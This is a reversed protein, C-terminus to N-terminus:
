KKKRKKKQWTLHQKQQKTGLHLRRSRPINSFFIVSPINSVYQNLGYDFKTIVVISKLSLKMLLAPMPDNTLANVALVAMDVSFRPLLTIPAAQSAAIAHSTSLAALLLTASHLPDAIM